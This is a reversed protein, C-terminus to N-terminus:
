DIGTRDDSRNEDDSRNDESSRSEDDSRRDDASRNEATSRSEDASRNEATSRSEDTLHSGPSETRDTAVGDADRDSSTSDTGSNGADPRGEGSQESPRRRPPSPDREGAPTEPATRRDSPTPGVVASDARQRVPDGLLAQAILGFARALANLVYLSAVALALGIPVALVAEGLTDIEWGFAVPGVTADDYHLPATLLSLSLAVLTVLVVFAVVGLWFKVYCFALGRWTSGAALYGKLAPWFGVERSSRADTPRSIDVELLANALAREFAALVRSGLVVALLIPIGVLMVALGAGLALGVTLAVFYALGLPLALALYALNRYSQPDTFPGFLACLSRDAAPADTTRQSM